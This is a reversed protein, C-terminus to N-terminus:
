KTGTKERWLNRVETSQDLRSRGMLDQTKKRLQELAIEQGWHGSDISKEIMSRQLRELSGQGASSISILIIFFVVLTLILSHFTTQRERQVRNDEREMGISKEFMTFFRSGKGKDFPLPQEM